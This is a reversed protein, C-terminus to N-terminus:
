RRTRSLIKVFKQPIKENVKEYVADFDKPKDGILYMKLKVEKLESSSSVVNGSSEKSGCGVMFTSLMLLSLGITALKKISRRIM